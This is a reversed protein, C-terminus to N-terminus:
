WGSRVHDPMLFHSCCWVSSSEVAVSSAEWRSSWTASLPYITAVIPVHLLFWELTRYLWSRLIIGLMYLIALALLIALVPSGINYVM